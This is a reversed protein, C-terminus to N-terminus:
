KPAGATWNPAVTLPANPEMEVVANILFRQGDNTVAYPAFTVLSGARFDFLSVPAGIMEFNEGTRVQTAILKGDRAYYFLEQGNQRWRPYNGGGNSVQRKSSGDPFSQVYVEFHGTYDSAYALWRGDPSLAGATESVDTHVVQFPKGEGSGTMPLAWVDLKTKPDTQRYIIFSGDRSWDTPFKPYDSKWLLTEEGALNAAKQYLNSGVGRSSAWVIRSGSPEWVPSYDNAPDSTFRAAAGGSVGYLWLEATRFQPDTLDAIFHKEDPSLWPQGPGAPAELSSTQQGRRNM